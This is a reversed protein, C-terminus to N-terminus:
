KEFPKSDESRICTVVQTTISSWYKVASRANNANSRVCLFKQIATHTKIGTNLRTKTVVLQFTPNIYRIRVWHVPRAPFASPSFGLGDPLVGQQAATNLLIEKYQPM